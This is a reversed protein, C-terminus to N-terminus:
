KRSKERYKQPSLGLKQKFIRYFYSSNEYGIKLSIQEIPMNTYTLYEAAVNIRQLQVLNIFTYGTHKKLFSSLYNQNFHFQKAMKELTVNNYNKEIYLLLSLVDISKKKDINSKSAVRLLRSFLTLIEFRIIQTSQLDPEYYEEIIDYIINVIKEDHNTEFLSYSEQKSSEDALLSFLLTSVPSSVENQLFNIENLSFASKKLTINIIISNSRITEVRHATRNGVLLINNQAVEIEKNQTFVTCEGLLPIVMEIYDHVHYPIYSEIPQVSIGISNPNLEFSENYTNFFEYVPSEGIYDIIKPDFKPGLEEWNKYKNKERLINLIKLSMNVGGM